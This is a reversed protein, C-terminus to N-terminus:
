STPGDFVTPRQGVDGDVSAILSTRSARWESPGFCAPMLRQLSQQAKTFSDPRDERVPLGGDSGTSELM